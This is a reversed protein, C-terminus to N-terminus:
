QSDGHNFRKSVSFVSGEASFDLPFETDDASPDTDLIVTVGLSDFFERCEGMRTIRTSFGGVKLFGYTSPIQM